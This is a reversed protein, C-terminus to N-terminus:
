MDHNVVSTWFITLSDSSFRFERQPVLTCVNIFCCSCTVDFKECTLDVFLIWIGVAVVTGFRVSIRITACALPLGRWRWCKLDTDIFDIEMSGVLRFFSYVVGKVKLILSRPEVIVEENDLEKLLTWVAEERM